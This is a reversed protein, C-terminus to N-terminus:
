MMKLLMDESILKVGLKRASVAKSSSSNPDSIILYTLGKGVSSKVVGGQEAIMKEVEARKMSLSGTIAFSMGTFKGDVPEVINIFGLMENIINRNTILGNFLLKARIPGFGPVSELSSISANMISSLSSYGNCTLLKIISVGINPISLAGIFTEVTIDKNKNISDIVNKASKKGMRDITSLKDVDLKYFDTINTVINLEYLKEILKDGLELINLTSVYNKLKNVIQSPCTLSNTCTLNEGIMVLTDGCSPCISPPTFVNAAPVIVKEIRPIVENAKCVLVTAGIGLGLENIYSLNYVSAKEITSGMLNVPNFNCVPTVRGSQGVSWSISTITTSIFQNSFKFAFKGKPRLNNEGLSQQIAIDNIGIVIGDIDYDLSARITSQYDEWLSIVEKESNCIKYNPINFGVSQLYELQEVETNFEADGLVNYAIIALHESGVGDYRRCIGSAANRANAYTTFHTKLSSLPLVIEARITGNFNPIYKIIGNMKIVNNLIDEGEYGAGRLVAHTLKGDFYQIGLSLGDLKDMAVVPYIKKDVLENPSNIKDLSGLPTLHKIKNWESPITAAGIKSLEPHNPELSKLTDILCDYEADTIIADGNYYASRADAISSVLQQINTM